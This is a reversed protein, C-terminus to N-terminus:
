LGDWDGIIPLYSSDGYIGIWDGPYNWERNGDDLVWFAYDPLYLGIDDTGNGDWDGIIPLSFLPIIVSPSSVALFTL